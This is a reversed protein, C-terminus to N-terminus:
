LYGFARLQPGMTANITAITEPKLKRIHDGPLMQRKHSDIDEADPPTFGASHRDLLVRKATLWPRRHRLRERLRLRHPMALADLFAGLWGPFDTVMQEYHLVTIQPIQAQLAIYDDVARVYRPLMHELVYADIGMDYFIQRFPNDLGGGHLRLFGYYGSVMCDRPDRMLLVARDGTKFIEPPFMDARRIPVFLGRHARWNDPQPAMIGDIASGDAARLVDVKAAAGRPGTDPLTADPPGMEVLPVGTIQAADVAILGMVSSGGRHIGFAYRNM